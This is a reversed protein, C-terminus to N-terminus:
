KKGNLDKNPIIAPTVGTAKRMKMVREFRREDETSPTYGRLNLGLAKAELYLFQKMFNSGAIIEVGVWGKSKIMQAIEAITAEQQNVITGSGGGEADEDPKHPACTSIADGYDHIVWGTKATIFKLLVEGSFNAKTNVLQIFPYVYNSLYEIDAHLVPHLGTGPPLDLGMGRQGWINELLSPQGM